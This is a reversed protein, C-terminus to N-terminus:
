AVSFFSLVRTLDHVLPMFTHRTFVSSSLRTCDMPNSRVVVRCRAIGWQLFSV